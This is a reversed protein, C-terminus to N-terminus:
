KNFKSKLALSCLKYLVRAGVNGDWENNGNTDPAVECLDFGIIKRGSQLVKEFLYVMENISFGGAVPTGTNTSLYPLLGDIDFSVYVNDSLKSVIEECIQSWNSGEFIQKKIQYDTYMVVRDGQSKAFNFEEECYDRLGVQVLRSVQPLQLANYFISAHSYKMGEYEKRLDMHADIHLISYSPYKESLAEMYGLPSSHDGGVIGVIKNQDLVSKVKEKVLDKINKCETNIENLLDQDVFGESYSQLYKEVKARTKKNQDEIELDIDEMAIGNKWMNTNNEDYLDLQLSANLIAQPGSAAGSKYSVTAEFPVPILVLESEEVSFPLGFVGHDRLGNENPNFDQLKKERIEKRQEFDQSM